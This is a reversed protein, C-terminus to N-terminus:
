AFLVMYFPVKVPSLRDQVKDSHENEEDKKRPGKEM